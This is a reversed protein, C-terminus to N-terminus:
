IQRNPVPDGYTYIIHMYFINTSKLKATTICVVLGGFKIGRWIKRSYSIICVHSICYNHKGIKWQYTVVSGTNGVGDTAVVAFEYNLGSILGSVLRAGSCASYQANNDVTHVSCRYTCGSIENFCQFTFRWETQRSVAPPQSTLRM